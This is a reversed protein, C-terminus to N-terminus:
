PSHLQFASVKAKFARVLALDTKGTGPPGVLLINAPISSDAKMLANAYTDLIKLPIEINLGKLQLNDLRAANLATLTSESMAEVDRNKQESLEKGTLKRGSLHSARVLQELGKNPTNTTLNSVADISLGDEFGANSYLSTAASLFEKKELNDPQSLRIEHLAGCVLEDILGERGHFIVLNGSSRLALSQAALHALEIARLQSDTQTGNTLSGPLMHEAFEVVLAFRMVRGDSWKLSDMPIKSLSSIGRIVRVVEHEDQPIDMLRHDRLIKEITRRDNDNQIRSADWDLGSALSFTILQMGYQVCCARRFAENLPRLKGEDVVLDYLSRGTLRIARYGEDYAKFITKIPM